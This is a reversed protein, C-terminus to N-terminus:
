EGKKIYKQGPMAEFSHRVADESINCYLVYAPVSTVLKDALYLTKEVAEEETPMLLQSFIRTTLEAPTLRM